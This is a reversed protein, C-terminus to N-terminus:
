RGVDLELQQSGSTVVDAGRALTAVAGRVDLKGTVVDAILRTRYEQMPEVQRRTRSIDEDIETTAWGLFGVAPGRDVCYELDFDASNGPIWGVGTMANLIIHELGRESADSEMPIVWAARPKM